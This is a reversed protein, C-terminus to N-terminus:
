NRLKKRIRSLREKSIGLYSAIYKLPIAAVEDPQRALLNQYLDEATMLRYEINRQVLIEVYHSLLYTLFHKIEPNDRGINELDNKRVRIIESDTLAEIIDTSALNNFFAYPCTDVDGEFTFGITVENDEIWRYARFAGKVIFFMSDCLEGEKIICEGKLIFERKSSNMILRLARTAAPDQHLANNPNIYM